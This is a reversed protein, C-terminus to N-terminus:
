RREKRRPAHFRLRHQIRSSRPRVPIFGYNATQFVVPLAIKNEKITDFLDPVSWLFLIIIASFLIPAVSDLFDDM